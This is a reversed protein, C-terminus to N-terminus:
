AASKRGCVTCTRKEQKQGAINHLRRGVGHKADQYHAGANRTSFPINTVRPKFGSTSAVAASKVVILDLGVCGCYLVVPKQIKAVPQM